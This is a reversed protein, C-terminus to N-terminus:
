LYKEFIFNESVSVLRCVWGRGSWVSADDGVDLVQCRALSM